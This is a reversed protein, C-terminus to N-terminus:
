KITPANFPVTVGNVVEVLKSHQLSSLSDDVCTGDPALHSEYFFTGLDDGVQVWLGGGPEEGSNQVVWPSAQARREGTCGDNPFFTSKVAITGDNAMVVIPGEELLVAYKGTQEHLLRGILEGGGWVEPLSMIGDQGQEGDEGDKGHQGNTGAIGNKGDIGDKGNIGDKGDKGAPGPEGRQGKNGTAEDVVSAANNPGCSFLTTFLVSALVTKM